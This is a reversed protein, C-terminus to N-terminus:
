EGREVILGGLKSDRNVAILFPKGLSCEFRQRDAPKEGSFLHADVGRAEIAAFRDGNFHAVAYDFVRIRFSDDAM